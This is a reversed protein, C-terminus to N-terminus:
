CDDSPLQADPRYIQPYYPLNLGGTKIDSVVGIIEANPFWSSLNLTFSKGVPDEDPWYKRATTENILAVNSTDARDRDDFLRGSILRMGVTRFYAPSVRNVGVSGHCPLGNQRLEACDEFDDAVPARGEISIGTPEPWHEVPLRASIAASEVGPLANLREEIEGYLKIRSVFEKSGPRSAGTTRGYKYDPVNVKM